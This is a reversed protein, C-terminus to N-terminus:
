SFSQMTKYIPFNIKFHKSATSSKSLVLGVRQSLLELRLDQSEESM